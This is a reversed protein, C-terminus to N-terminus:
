GEAEEDDEFAEDDEPWYHAGLLIWQRRDSLDLVDSVLMRVTDDDIADVMERVIDSVASGIELEIEDRRFDGRGESAMRFDDKTMVGGDNLAQVAAATCRGYLAADANDIILTMRSVLYARVADETEVSV